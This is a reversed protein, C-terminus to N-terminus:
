GYYTQEGLQNRYEDDEVKAKAQQIVEKAQEDPIAEPDKEQLEVVPPKVVQPPQPQSPGAQQESEGEDSDEDGSEDDDDDDEKAEWGPHAELWGALEVATPAEEGKLVKGTEKEIVAVRVETASQSTEDAAGNM